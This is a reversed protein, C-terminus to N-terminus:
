VAARVRKSRLRMAAILAFLGGILGDLAGGGSSADSVAGVAEGTPRQRVGAGVFVKVTAESEGGHGDAITYNFEDEGTFDTPPTYVVTTTTGNYEVRGGKKSHGSDGASALALKDGDADKDNKLLDDFRYTVNPLANYEDAAAQPPTNVYFALHQAVGTDGINRQDSVVRWEVNVPGAKALKFDVNYTKETNAALNGLECLVANGVHDCQEPGGDVGVFIAGEPLMGSVAVASADIAANNRLKLGLRVTELPKVSPQASAIPLARGDGATFTTSADLKVTRVRYSSIPESLSATYLMSDDPASSLGQVQILGDLFNTQHILVESGRLLGTSSDRRWVSLSGTAPAAGFIRAGDASLSINTLGKLGAPANASDRWARVFALEGSVADCKFALLSGNNVDSTGDNANAVYLNRGDASLMISRPAAMYQIGNEINRYTKAVTWASTVNARTLLTIVGTESSAAYLHTGTQNIALSNVQALAANDVTARVFTLAGTTPNRSFEAIANSDSGAVFVSAGNASMVLAKPAMLGSIGAGNRYVNKFTLAGTTANRELHVLANDESGITYVSKGDATAAVAWIGALGEAGAVGDQVFGISSDITRSNRDISLVGLGASGQLGLDAAYLQRGDVSSALAFPANIGDAPAAYLGLRELVAAEVGASGALAGMAGFIAVASSRTRKNRKHM